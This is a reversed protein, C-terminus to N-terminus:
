NHSTWPRAWSRPSESSITPISTDPDTTTSSTSSKISATRFILAFTSKIIQRGTPRHHRGLIVRLRSREGRGRPRRDHQLHNPEKVRLGLEAHSIEVRQPRDQWNSWHRIPQLSRQTIRNRGWHTRTERGEEETRNKSSTKRENLCIKIIKLEFNYEGLMEIRRKLIWFNVLLCFYVFLYFCYFVTFCFLIFGECDDAKWSRSWDGLKTVSTYSSVSTRFKWSTSEPWNRCTLSLKIKLVWRRALMKTARRPPTCLFNQWITRLRSSKRRTMDILMKWNNWLSTCSTVTSSARQRAKMGSSERGKM